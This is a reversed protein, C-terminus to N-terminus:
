YNEPIEPSPSVSVSASGSVGTDGSLNVESLRNSSLSTQYDAQIPSETSMNCISEELIYGGSCLSRIVEPALVEAYIVFVAAPIAVFNVKRFIYRKV